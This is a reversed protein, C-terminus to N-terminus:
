YLKLYCSVSSIIIQATKNTFLLNYIIAPIFVGMGIPIPQVAQEIRQTHLRMLM